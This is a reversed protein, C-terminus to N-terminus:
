SLLCILQGQLAGCVNSKDNQSPASIPGLEQAPVVGGGMGKESQLPQVWLRVSALGAGCHRESGGQSGVLDLRPSGEGGRAPGGLGGRSVM